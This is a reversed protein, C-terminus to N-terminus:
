VSVRADGRRGRPVETVCNNTNSPERCTELTQKTEMIRNEKRSQIIDVSRNRKHVKLGTKGSRRHHEQLSFFPETIESKLKM